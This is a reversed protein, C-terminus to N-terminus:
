FEVEVEGDDSSRTGNDQNTDEELGNNAAKRKKSYRRKGNIRCSFVHIISLLDNSLEESESGMTENLVVLEVKHKELVWKVLEFAFRSLRDKYAIVVQDIEENFARELITQLGKRKFNLGSGIDTVLKHEPYKNQM